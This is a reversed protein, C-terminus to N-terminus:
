AGSLICLSGTSVAVDRRVIKITNDLGPLFCALQYRASGIACRAYRRHRIPVDSTVRAIEPHHYQYLRFGRLLM